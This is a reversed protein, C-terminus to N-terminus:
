ARVLARLIGRVGEWEQWRPDAGAGKTSALVGVFAMGAAEAFRQDAFARDGVMVLSDAACGMGALTAEIVRPAPKMAGIGETVLVFDFADADLELAALREAVGRYDSVLGLRLGGARLEALLEAVGVHPRAATRMGELVLPDYVEDIWRQWRVQGRASRSLRRLTERQIAAFSGHDEGALSSRVKTYRYLRLLGWPLRRIMFRELARKDYLTGDLDFVVGAIEPGRATPAGRRERQMAEAPYM